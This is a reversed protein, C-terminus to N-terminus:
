AAKIQARISPIYVQECLDDIIEQIYADHHPGDGDSEIGWLSEQEETEDDIVVIGMWRWHDHCWNCLRKFDQEVAHAAIMRKTPQKRRAAVMGMWDDIEVYGWGDKLARKMSEQVDYFRVSSGRTEESLIRYEPRKSDESMWDTVVGYCDHEKWPEGMTHDYHYEITLERGKYTVSDTRYANSM